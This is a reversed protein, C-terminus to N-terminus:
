ELAFLLLVLLDIGTSPNPFDEWQNESRARLLEAHGLAQNTQNQLRSFIDMAEEYDPIYRRLENKIEVGNLFAKDSCVFHLLFWYECAPNSIALRIKKRRAQSIAKPLSPNAGPGEIDFVCWAEDYEQDWDMSNIKDIASSVLHDPTVKAKGGPVVVIRVTRLRRRLKISTFYNPETESGECLILITKRQSRQGPIRRYSASGRGRDFM